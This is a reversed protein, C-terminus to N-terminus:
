KNILFEIMHVISPFILVTLILLLAVLLIVDVALNRWRKMVSTRDTM